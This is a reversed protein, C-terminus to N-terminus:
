SRAMDQAAAYTEWCGKQSKKMQPILYKGSVADQPCDDDGSHLLRMPLRRRRFATQCVDLEEKQLGEITTLLREEARYAMTMCANVLKGDLLISCTGCWGIGWSIKTGTLQIGTHLLDSIRASPAAELDREM